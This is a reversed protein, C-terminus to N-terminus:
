PTHAYDVYVAAGFVDGVHQLRGPVGELKGLAAVAKETEAGCAIALALACIANAAQFGGILPLNVAFDRGGVAIDLLQGAAAPRLSKLRIDKGRAGFSLVRCRRKAAASIIKEAVPSEPDVVAVGGPELIDSFLRLKAALYSGADAHYDLHDRGLMTFAAARVRVGDLRHQALGHSSAELALHDVGDRCLGAMAEHLDVPGPTTLNGPTCGSASAMGLTDLGLTGISAAKIGLATWIQRLFSVTSTKGNTGTVAAVWEPQAAYFRAAMIAFRRRPNSDTLLPIGGGPLSVGPAALVAAAGRALADGIFDRGDSNTGPLAAFLFGPRVLRSDSSLGSIETDRTSDTSTTNM